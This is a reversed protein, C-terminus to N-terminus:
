ECLLWLMNRRKCCRDRMLEDPKSLLDTSLKSHGSRGSNFISSVMGLASIVPNRGGEETGAIWSLPTLAFFTTTSTQCKLVGRRLRIVIGDVM